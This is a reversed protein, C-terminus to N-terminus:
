PLGFGEGHALSVFSKIKPHHYLSYIEQDTMDGHLFYVKCKRKPYKKLLSEIQIYGANRDIISNNRGFMKLVLGVDQDIFEEVFWNVTNILNKRPGWQAMVLFNFNTELAIDLDIPEYKRAPYHVVQIPTTCKLTMKQNTEKNTGEYMTNVFGHKAHESVTVVRDMMNARELWIPAIRTTEIGATVGINVPALREWENPITVQMSVDYTGNKQQHEITKVLLSDMWKREEDDDKLWGTEGWNTTHLYIDFKDQRSRLSRLVFRTHEGYGSRTLAPGRVLIKKIM